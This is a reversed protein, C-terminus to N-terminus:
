ATTPLEAGDGACARHLAIGLEHVSAYAEYADSERQAPIGLRASLSQTGTSTVTPVNM